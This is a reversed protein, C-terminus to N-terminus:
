GLGVDKLHQRARKAIQYPVDIPPRYIDQEVVCYGNYDVERLVAGFAEFDVVGTGPACMVGMRVAEAMPINDDNVVKILCPDVSKLHLYPIRQHYKRMFKVPDGGRYVHHGTDLCLSILTPDTDSLFREIDEEFQVHTDACPHFVLKLNFRERVLEAVRHTNEVLRGWETIELREKPDASSGVEPYGTIFGDVLLLFQGGLSSLLNGTRLVYEKLNSWNCTDELVSLVGAATLKLGRKDLETKLVVPDTPLYGYVGLEICEYGADSVEDLFVSWSTQSSDHPSFIGWSEPSNGISVGM